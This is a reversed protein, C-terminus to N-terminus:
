NSSYNRQYNGEFLVHILESHFTIVSCVRLVGEVAPDACHLNIVEVSHLKAGRDEYFNDDDKMAENSVIVNFNALFKEFTM